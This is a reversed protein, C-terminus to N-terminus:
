DEDDMILEDGLRYAFENRLWENLSAHSNIVQVTAALVEDPMNDIIEAWYKRYLQMDTM